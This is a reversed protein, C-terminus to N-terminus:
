PLQVPLIVRGRSGFCAEQSVFAVPGRCAVDHTLNEWNRRQRAVLGESMSPQVIHIPPEGRVVNEDWDLSLRWWSWSVDRPLGCRRCSYWRESQMIKPDCYRSIFAAEFYEFLDDPREGSRFDFGRRQACNTCVLEITFLELQEFGDDYNRDSFWPFTLAFEGTGTM